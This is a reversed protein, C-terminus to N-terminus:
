CPRARRLGDTESGEAHIRAGHAAADVVLDRFHGAARRNILPGITTAPSRPDGVSLAEARAALRFTTSFVLRAFVPEIDHLREWLEIALDAEEDPVLDPAYILRLWHFDARRRGGGRRDLPSPAREPGHAGADLRERHPLVPHLAAGM